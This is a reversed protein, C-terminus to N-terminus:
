GLFPYTTTRLSWCPPVGSNRRHTTTRLCGRTALSTIKLTLSSICRRHAPASHLRQWNYFDLWDELEDRLQEDTLQLLDLTAYFEDLMTQQV